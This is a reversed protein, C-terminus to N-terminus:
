APSTTVNRRELAGFEGDKTGDWPTPPLHLARVRPICGASFATALLGLIEDAVKVQLSECFLALFASRHGYIAHLSSFSERAQDRSPRNASSLIM